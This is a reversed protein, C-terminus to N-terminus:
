VPWGALLTDMYQALNKAGDVNVPTSAPGQGSLRIRAIRELGDIEYVADVQGNTEFNQAFFVQHDDIHEGYKKMRTVIIPRKLLRLCLLTTGAGAHAITLTAEQIRNAMEDFSLFREWSCHEPEYNCTGLQVFVDDDFVRLRKLRDVEQVLRDFPFQETGTIVFIM